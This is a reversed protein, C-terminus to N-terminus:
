PTTADRAYAVPQNSTGTFTHEPQMASGVHGAPVDNTPLQGGGIDPVVKGPCDVTVSQAAVGEPAAPAPRDGGPIAEIRLDDFFLDADWSSFGFRDHGPGELPRPDDLRLIEEGDVLWRLVQGRREIRMRYTRGPEVRLDAREVRDAGHEDKRAIVSRTNGWGGLVLVYGSAHERGDGFIEVKVDGPRSGTATESRATFEVAVDRPLRMRLWLPNNRTGAGRLEGDRLRWPGGASWWDPGIEDRDFADAFSPGAVTVEPEGRLALQLLPLAPVVVAVALAAWGAGSLRRGARAGGDRAPEM